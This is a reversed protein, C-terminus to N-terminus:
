GGCDCGFVGFVGVRFVDLHFAWLVNTSCNWKVDRSIHITCKYFSKKHCCESRSTLAPWLQFFQVEQHTLRASKQWSKPQNTLNTDRQSSQVDQNKQWSSCFGYNDCEDKIQVHFLPLITQRLGEQPEESWESNSSSNKRIVPWVKIQLLFPPHNSAPKRTNQDKSWESNSSSSKGNHDCKEKIQLLFSPPHDSAPSAGLTGVTTVTVPWDWHWLSSKCKCM